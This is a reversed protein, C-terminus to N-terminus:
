CRLSNNRSSVLSTPRSGPPHLLHSPSVCPQLHRNPSHDPAVHPLEPSHVESWAEQQGLSPRELGLSTTRTRTSLLQLPLTNSTQPVRLATHNRTCDHARICVESSAQPIPRDAIQNTAITRLPPHMDCQPMASAQMRSHGTRRIDSECVHVHVTNAHTHTTHKGRPFAFGTIKVGKGNDAPQRARTTITAGRARNQSTRCQEFARPPSSVSNWLSYVLSALLHRTVRGIASM